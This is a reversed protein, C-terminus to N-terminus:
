GKVAGVTLGKIFYRQLAPFLFVIPGISVVAIALKLSQTPIQPLPVGSGSVTRSLAEFRNITNYLLFPLTYMRPDEIYLRAQLWDNWYYLSIFLGITVLGPVALPMVLRAYITFDNAGDIKASEIVEDPVSRMFNRLLLINWSTMFSPFVIALFTNKLHLYNVMWIYIPVLGGTFISTFYIFLAVQNRYQFDKRFLVYSTMSTVLLSALTGLVTVGTSAAYARLVTEPSRLLVSYAEFSVESPWLRYGETYIEHEATLSGSLILWFPLVCLIALGVLFIYGVGAFSM